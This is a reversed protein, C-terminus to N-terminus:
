DWGQDLEEDSVKSFERCECYVDGHGLCLCPGEEKGEEETEPDFHDTLVHGCHCYTSM